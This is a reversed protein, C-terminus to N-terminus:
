LDASLLYAYAADLAGNPGNTRTASTLEDYRDYGWDLRAGDADTL